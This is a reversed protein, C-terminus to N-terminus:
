PPRQSIMNPMLMFTVYMKLFEPTKHESKRLQILKVEFEPIKEYLCYWLVARSPQSLKDIFITTKTVDSTISAM